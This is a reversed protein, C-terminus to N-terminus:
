LTRVRTYPPNKKVIPAVETEQPSREREEPQTELPGSEVVIAKELREETPLGGLNRRQRKGTQSFSNKGIVHLAGSWSRAVASYRSSGDSTTPEQTYKQPSQSRRYSPSRSTPRVGTAGRSQLLLPARPMPRKPSGAESSRALPSANDSGVFSGSFTDQSWTAATTSASSCFSESFKWGEGPQSCADRSDRSHDEEVCETVVEPDSDIHCFFRGAHRKSDDIQGTSARYRNAFRHAAARLEAEDDEVCGGEPDVVVSASHAAVHGGLGGEAAGHVKMSLGTFKELFSLSVKDGPQDGAGRRTMFWELSGPETTSVMDVSHSRGQRRMKRARPSPSELSMPEECRAPRDAASPSCVKPPVPGMDGAIWLQLGPRSSLKGMSRRRAALGSM